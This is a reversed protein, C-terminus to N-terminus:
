LTLTCTLSLNRGTAMFIQLDKKEELVAERLRHLSNVPLHGKIETHRMPNFPVLCCRKMMMVQILKLRLMIWMVRVLKLNFMIQWVWAVELMMQMLGTRNPWHKQFLILLFSKELFPLENFCGGLSYASTCYCSVLTQVISTWWFELVKGSIVLVM